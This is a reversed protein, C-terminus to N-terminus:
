RKNTLLTEHDAHAHTTVDVVAKKARLENRIEHIENSLDSHGVMSKPLRRPAKTDFNRLAAKSIFRNRSSADTIMDSEEESEAENSINLRPFMQLGTRTDMNAGRFATVGEESESDDESSSIRRWRTKSRTGPGRRSITSYERRQGFTDIRGVQSEIPNQRGAMLKRLDLPPLSNVARSQCPRYRIPGDDKNWLDEAGEKMFRDALAKVQAKSTMAAGSDALDSSSKGDRKARIESRLRAQYIQKEQQLLRRAKERAMKEHMRKYQWKNLGGPFTRPGGGM